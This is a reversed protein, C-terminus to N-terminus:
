HTHIILKYREANETYLHTDNEQWLVLFDMSMVNSYQSIRGCGMCMNRYGHSIIDVDRYANDSILPQHLLSISAVALNTIHILIYIEQKFLHCKCLIFGVILNCYIHYALALQLRLLESYYKVSVKGVGRM